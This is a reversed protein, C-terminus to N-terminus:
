PCHSPFIGSSNHRVCKLIAYGLEYLASQNTLIDSSKSCGSQKMEPYAM